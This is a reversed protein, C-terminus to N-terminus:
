VPTNIELNQSANFAEYAINIGSTGVQFSNFFINFNRWEM